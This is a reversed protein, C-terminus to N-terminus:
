IEKNQTKRQHEKDHDNEFLKIKLNKKRMQDKLEQFKQKKWQIRKICAQFAELIKQVMDNDQLDQEKQINELIM